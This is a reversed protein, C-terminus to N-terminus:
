NELAEELWDLTDPHNLEAGKALYFFLYRLGGETGYRKQAIELISLCRKEHAEIENRVQEKTKM